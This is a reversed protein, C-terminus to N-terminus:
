KLSFPESYYEHTLTIFPLVEYEVFGEIICEDGKLEYPKPLQTIIIDTGKFTAGVQMQYQYQVGDCTIKPHNYATRDILSTREVQIIISNGQPIASFPSKFRYLHGDFVFPLFAALLMYLIILGAAINGLKVFALRGNNKQEKTCTM